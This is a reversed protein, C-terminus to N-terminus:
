RRSASQPQPYGVSRALHALVCAVIGNEFAATRRWGGTTGGPRRSGAPRRSCPQTTCTHLTSLSLWIFVASRKFSVSSRQRLSTRRTSALNLNRHCCCIKLQYQFYHQCTACSPS